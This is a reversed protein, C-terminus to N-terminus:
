DSNFQFKFVWRVRREPKQYEAELNRRGSKGSNSGASQRDKTGSCPFVNGEDEVSVM